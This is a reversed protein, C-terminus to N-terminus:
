SYVVDDGSQGTILSEDDSGNLRSRGLPRVAVVTNWIGKRVDVGLNKGKLM